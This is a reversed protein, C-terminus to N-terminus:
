HHVLFSRRSGKMDVVPLALPPKVAVDNHSSVAAAAAAIICETRASSGVAAARKLVHMMQVAALICLAVPGRGLPAPQPPPRLGHSPVSGTLAFDSQPFGLKDATTILHRVHDSM